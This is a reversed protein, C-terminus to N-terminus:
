KDVKIKLWLRMRANNLSVAVGAEVDGRRMYKKTPAPSSKGTDKASPKSADSGKAKSKDQAV